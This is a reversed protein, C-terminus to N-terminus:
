GWLSPILLALAPDRGQLLTGCAGWLVSCVAASGARFRPKFATKWLKPHLEDPCPMKCFSDFPFYLEWHKLHTKGPWQCVQSHSGQNGFLDVKHSMTEKRWGLREPELFLKSARHTSSPSCYLARPSYRQLITSSMTPLGVLM